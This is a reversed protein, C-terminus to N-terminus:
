VLVYFKQRIVQLRDRVKFTVNKEDVKKLEDKLAEKIM